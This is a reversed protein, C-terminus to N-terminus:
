AFLVMLSITAFTSAFFGTVRTGLALPRPTAAIATATM